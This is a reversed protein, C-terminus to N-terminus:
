YLPIDVKVKEEDVAIIMLAMHSFVVIFYCTLHYIIFAHISTLPGRKKIKTGIGYIPTISKTAFDSM